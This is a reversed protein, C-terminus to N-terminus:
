VLEKFFDYKEIMYRYTGNDTINLLGTSKYCSQHIVTNLEDLFVWDKNMYLRNCIPCRLRYFDNNKVM